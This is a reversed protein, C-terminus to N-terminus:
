RRIGLDFLRVFEGAYAGLDTGPDVARQVHKDLKAYKTLCASTVHLV